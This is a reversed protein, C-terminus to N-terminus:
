HRPRLVKLMLWLMGLVGGIAAGRLGPAPPTPRSSGRWRGPSPSRTPPCACARPSPSPSSFRSAVGIWSLVTVSGLGYGAAVTALAVSSAATLWGAYLGLPLALWPWDRTNAGRSARSARWRLMVWILITSLVPAILAVSIWSAGIALSVFLPWRPPGLRPRHRAQVPRLGGLGAALSLDGGLDRLGLGAPQIPPDDVPVPFRDPGFGTFPDTFFPTV